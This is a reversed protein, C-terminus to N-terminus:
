AMVARTRLRALAVGVCARETESKGPHAAPIRRRSWEQIESRGIGLDKLEHDSMGRLELAEQSTATNGRLRAACRRLMTLLNLLHPSASASPDTM